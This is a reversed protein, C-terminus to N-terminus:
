QGGEPEGFDWNGVSLDLLPDGIVLDNKEGPNYWLLFTGVGLMEPSTESGSIVVVALQVNQLLDGHGKLINTAGPTIRLGTILPYFDHNYIDLFWGDCQGQSYYTRFRYTGDDTKVRIERNGHNTVPLLVPM